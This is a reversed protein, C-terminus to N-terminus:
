RDFRADTLLKRITAYGPEGVRAARDIEEWTKSLISNWSPSGPPLPASKVSGKKGKLIEGVTKGAYEHGGGDAAGGGGGSCFVNRVAGGGHAEHIYTTVATGVTKRYQGDKEMM